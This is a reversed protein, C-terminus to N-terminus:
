QADPKVFDIPAFIDTVGQWFVNFERRPWDSKPDTLDSEKLWTTRGSWPDSALFERKGDQSRVDTFMIFHGGDQGPTALRVPLDIGSALATEVKDMMGTDLSKGASFDWYDTHTVGSALDRLAHAMLMFNERPKDGRMAQLEFDTPHNGNTDRVAKLAADRDPKEADALTGGQSDKRLLEAQAKTITGAGVADDLKEDMTKRAQQGVRSVGSGALHEVGPPLTGDKQFAALQDPTLPVEPSQDNFFHDKELVQRELGSAGAAPDNNQLGDANLMMAFVPDTEGRVMAAVAPACSSTFRQAYGDNDAKQDNTVTSDLPNATSTNTKDDVDVVSTQQVVADRNQGRIAGAFWELEGLAQDQSGADGLAGSRAAVAKLILARETDANAGEPVAGDPGKGAQDLLSSVRDFAPQPMGTLARAADMAQRRGMVGEQGLVSKTKPTGVGNVLTDM